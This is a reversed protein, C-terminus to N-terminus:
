KKFFAEIDFDTAQSSSLDDFPCDSLPKSPSISVGSSANSPGVAEVTSLPPQEEEEVVDSLSVRKAVTASSQRPSSQRPSPLPSVDGRSSLRRREVALSRPSPLLLSSAPASPAGKDREGVRPKMWVLSLLVSWSVNFLVFSMM